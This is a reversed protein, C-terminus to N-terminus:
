LDLAGDEESCLTILYLDTGCEISRVGVNRITCMRRWRLVFHVGRSLFLLTVFMTLCYSSFGSLSIRLCNLMCSLDM